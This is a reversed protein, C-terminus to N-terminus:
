FMCLCSRCTFHVFPFLPEFGPSVELDAHLYYFLGGVWCGGVGPGGDGGTGGIWGGRHGVVGQCLKKQVTKTVIGHAPNKLFM